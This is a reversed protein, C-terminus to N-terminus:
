HGAAGNLAIDQAKCNRQNHCVGMQFMREHYQVPAYYCTTALMCCRRAIACRIPCRRQVQIGSMDLFRPFTICYASSSYRAKVSQSDISDLWRTSCLRPIAVECYRVFTATAGFRDSTTTSSGLIPVIYRVRYIRSFQTIWRLSPPSDSFERHRRLGRRLHAPTHDIM